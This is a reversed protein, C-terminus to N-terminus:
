PMGAASTSATPSSSVNSSAVAVLGATLSETLLGAGHDHHRGHHIGWVM